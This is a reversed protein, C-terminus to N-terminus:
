SFKEGIMNFFQMPCESLVDMFEGFTYTQNYEDRIIKQQSNSKSIGVPHIAWTFSSCSRVGTKREPKSKNFGLERGASSKELTEKRPRKGCEPCKKFFGLNERHLKEKGGKYLTINCSWCFLGAASRKGVRVKSDLIYFNTGM